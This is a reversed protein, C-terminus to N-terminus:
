FAERYVVSIVVELHSSGYSSQSMLVIEGVSELWENMEKEVAKPHGRFIKVKM